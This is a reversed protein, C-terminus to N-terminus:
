SKSACYICCIGLSLPKYAALTYGSDTLIQVFNERDPFVKVSNNLYTYAEKNKAFFNGFFPSIKQMYVYYIQKFLFAKPRSFELVVLKGNPKLVRLMEKLGKDLNEFNRVGFAVTIADFTNNPHNITESDGLELTIHNGLNEKEIKTQAVDLMGQSIDLGIIKSTKLIKHTLIAVDATGTAVDLVFNANCNKLMKIAQKRWYVDIGFSLFRNLFDYRFAIKNFMEAVQNKKTDTSQKFPVVKNHPLNNQM